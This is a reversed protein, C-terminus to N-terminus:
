AIRRRKADRALLDRVFDSRSAVDRQADLRSMEEDTLRVRLYRERAVGSM